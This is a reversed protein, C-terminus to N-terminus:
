GQDDPRPRHLRLSGPEPADSGHLEHLQSDVLARARDLTEDVAREGMEVRGDRLAYMAVVLGQVIEDNLELARRERDRDQHAIRQLAVGAEGAFLAVSQQVRASLQRRPRAWVVVLLGAVRGERRVPEVIGTVGGGGGLQQSRGTRYAEDLAIIGEPQQFPAADSRSGAVGLAHLADGESTEKLLVVALAGTSSRVGDCIRGAVTEPSVESASGIENALGTVAALDAARARLERTLGLILAAAVASTGAAMMWATAPPRVDGGAVLVAAYSATAWGVHAATVPASFFAAAYLAVWVYMFAYVGGAPGGFAVCVAVLVSGFALLASLVGPAFRGPAALLAAAAVYALVVPVLLGAQAEDDRHPLLLSLAVLTAGAGFLLAAGRSMSVRDTSDPM